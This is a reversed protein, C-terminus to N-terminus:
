KLKIEDIIEGSYADYIYEKRRGMLNGGMVFSCNYCLLSLNEIKYNTRDEDAYALLLPVRGDAIRREKYGCNSCKEEGLKMEQIIQDRLRTPNLKKGNFKGALVDNLERRIGQRMKPIGKGSPNKGGVIWVDYLLAYKKFTNYCINLYRAAERFSRTQEIANKLEREDIMKTKRKKYYEEPCFKKYMKSYTKGCLNIIRRQLASKGIGFHKAIEDFPKKNKIQEIIWKKNLDKKNEIRKFHHKGKNGRSILQKTEESCAGPGNCKIMKNYTPKLEKIWFSERNNLTEQGGEVIEITYRTFNKKKHKKISELINIGSGYYTNEGFYGKWPDAQDFYVTTQGVYTEKTILNM